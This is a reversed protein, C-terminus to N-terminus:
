RAQGKREAAHGIADKCPESMAGFHQKVCLLIRGAGPKLGPCQQQIDVECAKRVATIKVLAAKCSETFDQFHAKSCEALRNGETRDSGCFVVVDRSCAQIAAVYQSSAPTGLLLLLILLAWCIRGM